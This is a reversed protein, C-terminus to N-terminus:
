QLLFHRHKSFSGKGNTITQYKAICINNEHRFGSNRAKFCDTLLKAKM